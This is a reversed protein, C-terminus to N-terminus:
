SELLENGLIKLNVILNTVMVEKNIKIDRNVKSCLPQFNSWHNLLYIEEETKASSVPIIHDLDWGYNFEGNYKGYNEWSMWNIFQAEIHQKFDLISCGLVEQTKIKNIYGGNILRKTYNKVVSRLNGGLKFLVDDKRRKRMYNNHYERKGERNVKDCCKCCPSKKDFYANNKTYESVLKVISCSICRKFGDDIIETGLVVKDKVCQKCKNTLGDEYKKHKPFCRIPKEIHCFKCYKICDTNDLEAFQLVLNSVKNNLPNGDIHLVRREKSYGELFYEAVLIHAKITKTKGGIQMSFGVSSPYFPVRFKNGINTEGYKIFRGFNSVKAPMGKIDAWIEGILDEM